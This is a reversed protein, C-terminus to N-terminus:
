LLIKIKDTKSSIMLSDKASTTGVSIVIFYKESPKLKWERICSIVNEDNMLSRFRKYDSIEKAEKILGTEDTIVRYFYNFHFSSQRGAQTIEPSCVSIEIEESKTDATQSFAFSSFGILLLISYPINKMTMVEYQVIPVKLCLCILV